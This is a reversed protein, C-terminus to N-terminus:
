KRKRNMPSARMKKSIKDVARSFPDRILSKRSNLIPGEKHTQYAGPKKSKGKKVAESYKRFKSKKKKAPM